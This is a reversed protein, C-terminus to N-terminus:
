AQHKEKKPFISHVPCEMKVGIESEASRLGINKMSGEEISGLFSRGFVADRAHIAAGLIDVYQKVAAFGSPSAGPIM